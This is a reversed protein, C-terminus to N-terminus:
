VDGQNLLEVFAQELDSESYCSQESLDLFELVYPDKLMDTTKEILQGQQALQKISKKDRSLALRDYLASDYQRKLEKLSWNNAACEIEYFSREDPNEIRMLKLYHSWSLKFRPTTLEASTTQQISYTMYFARMQRLNVASFGKGFNQTLKHSLDELVRKGYEAKERGQQEDEVIMRGIEYYTYVMTHNVSRAINQRAAHLLEAIKSYLPRNEIQKSM